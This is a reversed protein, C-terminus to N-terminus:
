MDAETAVDHAGVESFHNAIQAKAVTSQCHPCTVYEIKSERRVKSMLTKLTAESVDWGVESLYQALDASSAGEKRKEELIDFLERVVDLKSLDKRPEYQRLKAKLSEIDIMDKGMKDPTGSPRRQGRAIADGMTMEQIGKM